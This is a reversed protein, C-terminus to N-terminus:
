GWPRTSSCVIRFGIASGHNDPSAKGRCASRCFRATDGWGGGRIVRCLGADPGVPDVPPSCLYFDEAYWDSCWEWVNGLMDSLGWQNATKQGVQQPRGSANAVYWCHDVTQQRDDGWPYTTTSGARCAYEWEAESPLRYTRGADLEQPFRTLRRCFEMADDWTARIVPTNKDHQPDPKEEMVRCWQGYTVPFAGIFFPQSLTIHHPTEDAAGDADGMLFDGGHCMVFRM